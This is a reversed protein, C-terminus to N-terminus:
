KQYFFTPVKLKITIKIHFLTNINFIEYKKIYCLCNGFNALTQILLGSLNKTRLERSPETEM